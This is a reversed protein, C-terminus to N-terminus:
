KEDEVIKLGQSNCWEEFDDYWRKDGLYWRCLRRVREKAPLSILSADESSDDKELGANQRLEEIHGLKKAPMGLCSAAYNEM